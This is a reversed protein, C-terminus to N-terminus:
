FLSSSTSSRTWCYGKEEASLPRKLFKTCSLFQCFGRLCYLHRSDKPVHHSACTSLIQDSCSLVKASSSLVKSSCSCSSSNATLAKFFRATLANSLFKAKLANFTLCM